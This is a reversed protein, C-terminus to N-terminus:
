DSIFRNVNDVSLYFCNKQYKEDLSNVVCIIFRFRFM